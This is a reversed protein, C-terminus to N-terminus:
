EPQGLADEDESVNAFAHGSVLGSVVDAEALAALIAENIRPDAHQQRQRLAEEALDGGVQGLATIAAEQVEVDADDVLAELYPVADDDGIQGAANAAEYRREPDESEMEEYLTSLWAADASRGMAHLAGIQLAREEADYARWILPGVWDAGAAGVAEVARRRVPISQAPNEAETRLTSLLRDAHREPLPSVENLLVFRGLALAAAGRVDADPDNRLMELLPDLLSRDEDEWLGDIALQRIEADVDRLLLKFVADFKLTANDEALLILQQAIQLRRERSAGPLLEALQPLEKEDLGSLRTLSGVRLPSAQDVIEHFFADHNM